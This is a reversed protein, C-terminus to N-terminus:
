SRSKSCWKGQIVVRNRGMEKAIYLAKDALKIANNQAFGNENDAVGVSITVPIRTYGDSKGRVKRYNKLKAKPRRLSRKIFPSEETAKRAEELYPAAESKTKGNFIIAFEEGGYRYVKGGGRIQALKSAVMKLAQDGADHGHEDNFRKFHDIDAMAIAYRGSLKSLAESLARRGLTGTLEDYYALRYSLHVFGAAVVVAAALLFAAEVGRNPYFSLAGIMDLFAFLMAIALTKHREMFIKVILAIVALAIFILAIQPIGDFTGISEFPTAALADFAGPAWEGFAIFLIVGLELAVMLVRILTSASLPSREELWAFVAFNLPALYWAALRLLRAAEPDVRDAFVFSNTLLSGIIWALLLAYLPNLRGFRASLALAIFFFFHAFVLLMNANVRESFWASFGAAMLAALSFM